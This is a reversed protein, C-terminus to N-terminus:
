EEVDIEEVKQYNDSLKKNETDRNRRCTFCFFFAKVGHNSCSKKSACSIYM